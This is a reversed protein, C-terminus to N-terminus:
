SDAEIPIMEIADSFIPVVPDIVLEANSRDAEIRSVEPMRVRMAGATAAIESQVLVEGDAAADRQVQLASARRHNLPPGATM